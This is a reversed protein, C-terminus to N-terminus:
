EKEGMIEKAKALAAQHIGDMQNLRANVAQAETQLDPVIKAMLKDVAEVLNEKLARIFWVNGSGAFSVADLGTCTEGERVTDKRLIHVGDMWKDMSLTYVEKAPPESPRKPCEKEHISCKKSSPFEGGCHECFWRVKM